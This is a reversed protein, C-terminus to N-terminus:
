ETILKTDKPVNHIEKYFRTMYVDDNPNPFQHYEPFPVKKLRLVKQHQEMHEVYYDRTIEVYKNISVPFIYTLALMIFIFAHIYKNINLTIFSDYIHKLDIIYQILDLIILILFIMSAFTCRPGYPSIVFFPLTLFIMSSYNFMLNKYYSTGKFNVIIFALLGILLLLLMISPVLKYIYDQSVINRYFLTICLSMFFISVIIMNILKNKSIFVTIILLAISTVLLLLTNETFFFQTMQNIYINLSKLIFNSDRNISQYSSNGTLVSTYIENTFMTFFGVVFGILSCFYIKNLKKHKIVYSINYILSITILYLSVHEVILMSLLSLIFLLIVKSVNVKSERKNRYLHIFYLISLASIVYNVYGAIWGFTQSFVSVPMLFVLFLIYIMFTTGSKISSSKYILYVLFTSILTMAVIRLITFRVFIIEIINSFYRGNYNHFLTNLRSIGMQSKWTWDDGTLPIISSLILFFLAVILYHKFKIKFDKYM